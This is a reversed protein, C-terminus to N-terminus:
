DFLPDNPKAPAPAPVTAAPEPITAVDIPPAPQPTLSANLDDAPRARKMGSVEVDEVEDATRMGIMLEPCFERAWFTAARYKLMQEPMTQWKANKTWGEAKALALSVSSGTLTEGTANEVCEAYCTDKTKNMRFRLPTFKGSANVKAIVFTAAWAPKGHIPTMNQMIVFPSDGLRQAVELAVLCNGIKDQGQYATPVMTSSALAKAMRQALEFSESNSFASVAQKAPERVALATTETSM